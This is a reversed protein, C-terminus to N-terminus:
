LTEWTQTEPNFYDIRTCGANPTGFDDLPAFSVRAALGEYYLEGDDDYMRFRHPRPLSHNGERPGMVGYEDRMGLVKDGPRFLHDRTIEWSDLCPNTLCM